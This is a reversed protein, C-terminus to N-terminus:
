QKGGLGKTKATTKTPKTVLGGKAKGGTALPKGLKDAAAKSQAQKESATMSAQKAGGAATSKSVSGGSWTDSRDSGTKAYAQGQAVQEPTMAAATSIGAGGSGTTPAAPAVVPAVVTPAAVPPKPPPTTVGASTTTAGPTAVPTAGVKAKAIEDLSSVYKKGTAAFENEVALQALGPLSDTASKIKGQLDTYEKTGSLGQSDMVQLATKAEAINQIKSGTNVAGGALTIVPNATAAGALALGKGAYTGRKDDLAELGFKYPDTTIADFNKEAWSSTGSSGGTTGGTTGPDNRDAWSEPKVEPATPVAPAAEQAASAKASDELEQTWPVFDPDIAGLATGDSSFNFTKIEGTTPNIYKRADVASDSIQAGTPTPNYQFDKRNWPTTVDGGTAMGTQGLAEQLMQEEEPTLTDDETPVGNSDVPAGGIRGDAEMDSLGQKAQSRLDEFYKVGFFRVVDAPIVYEGESLQTPIDDRVEKALSGPPVENGTVPEHTMGDDAMGGDAMLRNMQQDEVMGGEAFRLRYEALPPFNTIDLVKVKEKGKRSFESGQFRMDDEYVRIPSGDLSSFERNLMETSKDFSDVYTPKLAKEAAAVASDMLEQGMGRAKEMFDGARMAAIRSLPPMVIETAGEKQAKAILGLLLKKTVDTTSTVPFDKKTYAAKKNQITADAIATQFDLDISGWLFDDIDEAPYGFEHLKKATLKTLHSSPPGRLSEPKVEFTNYLEKVTTENDVAGDLNKQLIGELKDTDVGLGKLPEFDTGVASFFSRTPNTTSRSKGVNQLLDSQLEEVLLRKKDPGVIFSGRAHALDKDTLHYFPTEADGQLSLEFYDSTGEKPKQRQTSYYSSPNVEQVKYDGKPLLEKIDEQTYRTNPDLELKYSDLEAINTNPTKERLHKLIVNGPLGKEGFNLAEISSKIPSYFDLLNETPNDRPVVFPNKGNAANGIAGSGKPVDAGVGVPSLSSETRFAADGDLFSRATGVIDAKVKGPIANSVAKVGAGVLPLAEVAGLGMGLAGMAMDTSSDSNYGGKAQRYGEQTAMVSGAVPAFDLLGMQDRTGAIGSAIHEATGAGLGLAEGGKTLNSRLGERVTPTYAELNDTEKPTFPVVEKKPILSIEEPTYGAAELDADTAGESVYQLMSKQRDDTNM